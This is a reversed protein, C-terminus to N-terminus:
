IEPPEADRDRWQRPLEPLNKKGSEPTVDLYHTM